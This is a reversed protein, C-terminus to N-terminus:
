QPKSASLTFAKVARYWFGQGSELNIDFEKYAMDVWNTENFSPGAYAYLFYTDYSSGNWVYVVDSDAVSAGATANSIDFDNLLAATPYPFTILNLGATLALNQTATDSAVGGLAVDAEAAIRNLWVANGPTLEVNVEAYDTDVWATEDFGAGAYAYYFYMSYGTGNWVFVSDSDAASTGATFDSSNLLESLTTTTKGDVVVQVGMRNMGQDLHIEVPVAPAVFNAISGSTIVVDDLVGSGYVDFSTIKEAGKVGYGECDANIFYTGNTTLFSNDTYGYLSSVACGNIWMKFYTYDANDYFVQYTVRVWDGASIADVNTLPTWPHTVIWPDFTEEYTHYLNAVGNTDFYLAFPANPAVTPATSAFNPQILYDIYVSQETVGDVLLSAGDTFAMAVGHESATLPYGAFFGAPSDTTTALVDGDGSWITGAGLDAGDAYGEFSDSFPVAQSAKQAETVASTATSTLMGTEVSSSINVAITEGVDSATLTYTSVTAGSIDAGSRTWQYSLTGTNNGDALTATLEAGHVADGSIQATGTLAPVTDDGPVILTPYGGAAFAWFAADWGTYVDDSPAAVQLEATTKGEAQELEGENDSVGVGGIGSCVTSDYYCSLVQYYNEAVVAGISTDGSTVSGTNYSMQVLGGNAAMVGGVGTGGSVSGTNYCNSVESGENYAVVGAVYQSADGGSVSGTNYCRQMECSGAYGAVGAVYASGSVSGTNYCDLVIGMCGGLVGGAMMGGNVCGTNYCNQVLPAISLGAVGGVGQGSGNVTGANYCNLLNGRNEGVVGGVNGSGSIYSETVGVNQITGGSGLKGFLGQNESDTNIYLGSVVHGDGDLTGTFENSNEDDVVMGIPTWALPDGGVPSSLENEDVIGDNSTDTWTNLAIDATLKFYTDEYTTGANVSQAFATLLEASDILYPETETGAGAMDVISFTITQTAPAQNPDGDSVSYSFSGEGGVKGAQTDYTLGTLDDSSLVQAVEVPSGGSMVTGYEAGPLATVTITLTKKTTDSPASIALSNGTTNPFPMLTKDAQVTPATNVVVLTIEVADAANWNTDGAQSATIKATGSGVLTVAAGDIAAVAPTDSVYSVTLGSGASGALTFDADGWNKTLDSLGDITQSAKSVHLTGTATGQYCTDDVTAVVEYSGVDTPTSANGDYTVTVTLDAPVTEASVVRAAGTYTQTLDALTITVTATAKAVASTASSTRTGSEVSSSIKVAITEGIDSATLTYTSAVAGSIDSGSRMWQYSLTGTNNGDALTATLEAGYVADGSIQATGTLAAAPTTLELTSVASVNGIEDEVIVHAKYATNAALGTVDVSNAAATAAATGKAVAIGQAKVTAADPAEDPAAYVLYYLTGAEDSTVHLTAGSTTVSDASAASLTPATEDFADKVTVVVTRSSGSKTATLTVSGNAKLIADSGSVSIINADSSTWVVGNETGSLTFNTKVDDMTEGDALTIPLAFLYAPVSADMEYDTTEDVYGTLRPYLGAAVNWIATDGTVWNADFASGDTMDSTSKGEAGGAQDASGSGSGLGGVSCVLNDYYCSTLTATATGTAAGAIGGTYMVATPVTGVNYCANLVGDGMLGVVGGIYNAGDCDIRGANYCNEATGVLQGIVGGAIDGTITVTGGNYCCSMTSSNYFYGVLGGSIRGSNTVDGINYCYTMTSDFASGAVGGVFSGAGQVQGRNGCDVMAGYFIGVVGGVSDSSGSVKGTNLCGQMEASSVYGAVGGVNEGGVVRGGLNRCNEIKANTGAAGVLTGVFNNGAVYSAEMTLDLLTAGHSFGFLGQYDQSSSDIYLGSVTRGGGDYTGSFENSSAQNGIPTWALAAGGDNSLESSDVIGDSNADTWTNLAIDSIQRFFQGSYDTGANVNGALKALQAATAIIYPKGETGEGAAFDAATSGDWVSVTEPATTDVRQMTYCTKNYLEDKVVVNFYYSVGASLTTITKEAFDVGYGDIATGNAEINEVTDIKNSYSWYVCYQLATQETNNDSAKTWSLTVGTQSVDSASITGDALTPATSDVSPDLCSVLLPYTGAPFKWVSTDWSAYASGAQMQTTTKGSAGTADAGGVGGISPCITKDYFCNTVKDPSDGAIAGCTASSSSDYTVSGANYCFSVSGVGDLKGAIGACRAATGTVAGKNYCNLISSKSGANKGVLGAVEFAGAGGSVSGTNLSEELLDLNNGVLGGVTSGVYSPWGAAQDGISVNGSNYCYRLTSTPVSVSSNGNTGAVGGVISAGIGGTVEGTNYCNELLGKYNCGVVGGLDKCSGGGTVAGTNYWSDMADDASTAALYGAVGGIYQGSAAGSVTGTNYCNAAAAIGDAKGFVGGVNSDGSVVGTNYCNGTTAYKLQGVVGGVYKSDGTVKGTNHCNTMEGSWTSNPLYFYGVVGGVNDSSGSVSGTNYCNKVTGPYSVYGVVGGVYGKGAIYSAEVGLNKITAGMVYGFLGQYYSVSSDISVGAIKHGDGDFTGQFKNSSTGIPTWALPADATGNPNYLEDADVFSDSNADNWSNLGIDDTLKFYSGSYTTGANVQQALYALQAGTAILYPTNESGDGGDFDSAISGDWVSSVTLTTFAITSVASANGTSDKVIVYAKYSTTAALGTVAVSNEGAVATATGNAVADSQAAVTAADPEGDTAAYVLYYVTGAENSTVHLTAGSPTLSDASANSLTPATTDGGGGPIIARTTIPAMVLLALVVCSKAFLSKFEKMTREM